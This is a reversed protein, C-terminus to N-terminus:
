PKVEIALTSGCTCNRLELTFAPEDPADGAPTYQHGVLDLQSWAAADAKLAAHNIQCRRAAALAAVSM